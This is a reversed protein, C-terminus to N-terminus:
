ETKAKPKEKERTLLFIPFFFILTSCASKLNTDIIPTGLRIHFILNILLILLLSSIIGALAIKVLLYNNMKSSQNTTNDNTRNITHKM